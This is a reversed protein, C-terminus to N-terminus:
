HAKCCDNLTLIYIYEFVDIESELDFFSFLNVFEVLAVPNQYCNWKQIIASQSSTNSQVVNGLLGVGTKEHLLRIFM